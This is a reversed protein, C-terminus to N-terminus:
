QLEYAGIDVHTGANRPLGRQDTTLNDPPGTVADDGADIAPSAGTCQMRPFTSSTCLAMTKTPGGYNALPALRPDTNPLDTGGSSFCTDDSSLNHGNSIVTGSCNGGAGSRAIITNLLTASASSDPHNYIGGGFGGFPNVTNGSLTCNILTATFGNSIGGGGGNAFFNAPSTKNRSLTCNTLTLAGGNAIGGGDWRASNSDLTCNTLTATAVLPFVRAWNYIGGGVQSRNGTLTSDTLTVTGGPANAIGGGWNMVTESTPTSNRKLTCNTLTASGENYLGGGGRANISKNSDLTCNTLTATGANFIGGGGNALARNSKLTCKTLNLTGDNYIGAGGFTGVNHSLNCKTLELTAGAAVYVGGGYNSDFSDPPRGHEISLDSISTTGANIEFVLSRRGGDIHLSTPSGSAPGTITVNQTITLRGGTLRVTAPLALNFAIMDGAGTGSTCDGASTDAAANVNAIAERLTCQGDGAITNDGNTNVTITAASAVSLPVLVMIVAFNKM